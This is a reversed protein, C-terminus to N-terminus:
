SPWPTRIRRLSCSLTPTLNSAPHPHSDPEASVIKLYAWNREERQTWASEAGAGAQAAPQRVKKPRPDDDREKGACWVVDLAKLVKHADSEYDSTWLEFPPPHPGHPVVTLRRILALDDFRMCCRTACGPCACLDYLHSWERPTMSRELQNKYVWGGLVQMGVGEEGEETETAGSEEWAIARFADMIAEKLEVPSTRQLARHLRALSPLTVLAPDEFFRLVQLASLITLLTDHLTGCGLARPLSVHDHGGRYAKVLLEEDRSILRRFLCEVIRVREVSKRGERIFSAHSGTLSLLELLETRRLTELALLPDPEEAEPALTPSGPPRLPNHPAKEPQAHQHHPHAPNHYSYDRPAVRSDSSHASGADDRAECASCCSSGDDDGESCDCDSDHECYSHEHSCACSSHSSASGYAATGNCGNTHQCRQPHLLWLADEADCVM